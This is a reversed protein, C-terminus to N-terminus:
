HQFDCNIESAPCGDPHNQHFWCPKVKRLPINNTKRKKKDINNSGPIRFQVKGQSVHFIHNHNKLLTQLGGCENRLKQLMEPAILRVVESISIQRGANWTKDPRQELPIRRGIRLLHAVVINVIDLILGKDLQTCNRTQESSNRVKFNSSWMDRKGAEIIREQSITSRANIIKQIDSDLAISNEKAYSRKWGIFCTRKTSPIRLKDIQTLFGCGECISKVYSMYESYQSEAANFRQYKRGDFEYACCPLLFFRCKYSSRAAIVPIWPTLEDSHNGIIWDM